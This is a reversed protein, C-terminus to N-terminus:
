QVVTSTVRLTFTTTAVTETLQVHVDFLIALSWGVYEVRVTLVRM